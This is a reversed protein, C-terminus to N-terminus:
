ISIKQTQNNKTAEILSFGTKQKQSFYKANSKALIKVENDDFDLRFTNNFFSRLEIIPQQQTRKIVDKIFNDGIKSIYEGAGSKKLNEYAQVITCGDLEINRLTTHNRDNDYWSMHKVDSNEDYKVFSPLLLGRPGTCLADFEHTTSDKERRALSEIGKTGNKVLVYDLVDEGILKEKAEEFLNELSDDYLSVEIRYAEGEIFKKNFTDYSYDITLDLL